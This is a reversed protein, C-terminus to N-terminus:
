RRPDTFWLFMELAPPITPEMPLNLMASSRYRDYLDNANLRKWFFSAFGALYLFFLRLLKRIMKKFHKKKTCLKRHNNIQTLAAHKQQIM